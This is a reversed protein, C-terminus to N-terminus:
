CSGSIDPFSAEIEVRNALNNDNIRKDSWSVGVRFFDSNFNNEFDITYKNFQADPTVDAFTVNGKQLDCLNVWTQEVANNAQLLSLTYDFSNTAYKLSQLQGAAMGLLAFSSVVLAVMVEVLSCGAQNTYKQIKSM